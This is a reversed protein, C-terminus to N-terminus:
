IQSMSPCLGISWRNETKRESYLVEGLFKFLIEGWLKLPKAEKTSKVQDLNIINADLNTFM